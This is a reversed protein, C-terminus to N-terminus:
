DRRHDCPADIRLEAAACGVCQAVVQRVHHRVVTDIIDLGVADLSNEEVLSLRCRYHEFIARYDLRTLEDGRVDIRDFCKDLQNPAFVQLRFKGVQRVIESEGFRRRDKRGIQGRFSRGFYM